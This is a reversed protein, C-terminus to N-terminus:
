KEKHLKTPFIKQTFILSQVIETQHKVTNSWKFPAFFTVCKLAPHVLDFLFVILKDRNWYCINYESFQYSWPPKQKRQWDMPWVHTVHLIYYTPSVKMMFTYNSSLDGSSDVVLQIDYFINATPAFCRPQGAASLHPFAFMYKKRVSLNVNIMSKPSKLCFYLGFVIM